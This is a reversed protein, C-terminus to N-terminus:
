AGTLHPLNSGRDAPRVLKHGRRSDAAQPPTGLGERYRYATAPRRLAGYRAGRGLQTDEAATRGRIGMGRRRTACGRRRGREGGSRWADREVPGNRAAAFVGAARLRDDPAVAQP